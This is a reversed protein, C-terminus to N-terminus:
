KPAARRSTAAIDSLRLDEANRKADGFDALAVFARGGVEHM